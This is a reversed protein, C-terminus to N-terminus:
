EIGLYVSPQWMKGDPAVSADQAFSAVPASLVFAGASFIGHLFSRRSLEVVEIMVQSGCCAQHSTPYAPVHRLPLHQRADISRYGPGYAEAEIQAIDGGAYDPRESLIWM